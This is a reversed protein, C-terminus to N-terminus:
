AKDAAGITGGKVIRVAKDTITGGSGNSYEWEVQIGQILSTAPLAFGFGTCKLFNSADGNNAFAATAASNDSTQARSPNTWALTGIGTANVCSGASSKTVTDAFATGAAMLGLWALALRAFLWCCSRLNSGSRRTDM